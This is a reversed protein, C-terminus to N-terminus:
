ACRCVFVFYLSVFFCGCLFFVAVFDVVPSHFFIMSPRERPLELTNNPRFDLIPFFMLDVFWSVLGAVVCLAM